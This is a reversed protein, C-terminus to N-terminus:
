YIRRVTEGEVKGGFCVKQKLAEHQVENPGPESVM